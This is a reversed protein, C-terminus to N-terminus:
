MGVASTSRPKLDRHCCYMELRAGSHKIRIDTSELCNAFRVLEPPISAENLARREVGVRNAM